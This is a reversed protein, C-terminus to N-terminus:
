DILDISWDPHPQTARSHYRIAQNSNSRSGLSINLDGNLMSYDAFYKKIYEGKYGLAVAFDSYGYNSYHMMIHWLIPLGGIEVMPKPRVQTEEVLRTGMGCALIAIKM